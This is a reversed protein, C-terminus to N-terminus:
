QGDIRILTQYEETWKSTDPALLRLFWFPKRDVSSLGSGSWRVAWDTENMSGLFFGEDPTEGRYRRYVEVPEAERSGLGWEMEGTSPDRNIGIAHWDPDGAGSPVKAEFTNLGGNCRLLTKGTHPSNAITISGQDIAKEQTSRKVDSSAGFGEIACSERPATANNCGDVKIGWPGAINTARNYRPLASCDKVPVITVGRGQAHIGIALLFVALYATCLM